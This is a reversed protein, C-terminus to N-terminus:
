ESDPSGSPPRYRILTFCSDCPSPLGVEMRRDVAAVPDLDRRRPAVEDEVLAEVRHQEDGGADALRRHQRHQVPERALAARAIHPPDVRRVVGVAM